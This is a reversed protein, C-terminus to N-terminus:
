DQKYPDGGANLVDLVGTILRLCDANYAQDPDSFFCFVRWPGFYKIYGMRYGQPLKVVEHVKQRRPRATATKKLAIKFYRNQTLM